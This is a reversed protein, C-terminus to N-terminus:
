PKLFGHRAFIAQAEPSALFAVFARAEDPRRAAALVAGPYRIGPAESRPVACAVRVRPETRADTAFVIAADVDGHAVAALAGRVNETPVVKRKVADWAGVRELHRKAYVGAPVSAPDALAVSAVRGAALDSASALGLPSDAAVVVVLANSLLDRRTGPVVLGAGELATMTAEDASVFADGPAGHEIQRALTSSAGLDLVVRTGSRGEYVGAVERLADSLSAAARVLLEASRAAPAGALFLLACALRIM